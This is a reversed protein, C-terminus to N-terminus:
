FVDAFIEKNYMSELVYFAHISFMTPWAVILPYIHRLGFRESSQYFIGGFANLDAKSLCQMTMLFKASKVAADFYHKEGTLKFLVMWIRIAQATADTTKIQIGKLKYHYRDFSGDKNQVDLLWRGAKSVAELYSNEKLCSYAYILGETAYCHAHTFTYKVTESARFSGNDNQLHLVWDCVRRSAEKYCDNKTANWLKLLGISNKAHLCAKDGYWKSNSVAPLEFHNYAIFSGEELQMKNILWNGALTACDLAFMEHSQEYFDVLGSIDISADFSYCDNMILHNDFNYGKPFAGANASEKIQINALFKCANRAIMLYEPKRTKSFLYIFLNVAYGTIESYAISYRKHNLDYKENFSGFLLNNPSKNNIDSEVLWNLALEIFQAYDQTNSNKNNL